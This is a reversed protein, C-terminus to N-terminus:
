GEIGLSESLVKRVSERVEDLTGDGAVRMVSAPSAEYYAILPATLEEYVELRHRVTEERDDERHILEEGSEDCRGAVKPPDFYVNYVRGSGPAVRRGSIRQVLVDAPAELVLAGDVRRGVEPLTADLVKAQPVTRPFGDFLIGTSPDLSALHEKVMEVMLEDPVLNGADMFGQARKGLETGERRAARLLDGTAIREWGLSEALIAGQTGKGVGPPGLLIVVM